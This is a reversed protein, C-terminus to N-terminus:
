WTIINPDTTAGGCEDYLKRFTDDTTAYFTGDIGKIVWDGPCAYHHGTATELGLVPGSLPYTNSDYFLHGEGWELLEEINKESSLDPIQVAEVQVPKKKYRKIEVTM